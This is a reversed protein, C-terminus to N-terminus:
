TAGTGVIVEIPLDVTDGDYYEGLRALVEGIFAEKDEASLSAILPTFPPAMDVFWDWYERPTGPFPSPLTVPEEDVDVFGAETLAATLSGPEAFRFPTPADPDIEPPEVYTFLLGVCIDFLPQQRPGWVLYAARGGPTLVRHAERLAASLDAFYMLGLRCTVRDFAADPFPLEHADVVDFSVNALGAQHAREAAIDLLGPAQDTVTVHGDPEVAHAIALAPEGHGSALDLVALGPALRARDVILDRTASFTATEHEGWRRYAAVLDPSTWEERIQQRYQAIKSQGTTTM